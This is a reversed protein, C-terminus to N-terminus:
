PSLFSVRFFLERNLKKPSSTSHRQAKLKRRPRPREKEEVECEIAFVVKNEIGKKRAEVGILQAETTL